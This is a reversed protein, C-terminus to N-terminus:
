LGAQDKLRRLDRAVGVIDERWAEMAQRGKAIDPVNGTDLGHLLATYGAALDRWAGVYRDHVDRVDQTSPTVSQIRALHAAVRPADATVQRRVEAEDVFQTALIRDITRATEAEAPAWDNARQLYLTLDARLAQTQPSSCALAAVLVVLGCRQLSRITLHLFRFIM